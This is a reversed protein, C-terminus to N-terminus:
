KDGRKANRVVPLRHRYPNHYNHYSHYNYGRAPKHSPTGYVYVPGCTSVYMGKQDEFRKCYYVTIGETCHMVHPDRACKVNLFSPM